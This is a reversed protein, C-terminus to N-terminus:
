QGAAWYQCILCTCAQSGLVGVMLGQLLMQRGLPEEVAALLQPAVFSVGRLEAPSIGATHMAALAAACSAGM